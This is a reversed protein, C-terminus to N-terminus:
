MNTWPIRSGAPLQCSPCSRNSLFLLFADCQLPFFFSFSFFVSTHDLYSRYKFRSWKAGKISCKICKRNKTYFEFIYDSVLILINLTMVRNHKKLVKKRHQCCKFNLKLNYRFDQFYVLIMSEPTFTEGSEDRSFKYKLTGVVCTCLWCVVLLFVVPIGARTDSRCSDKDLISYLRLRLAEWNQDESWHTFLLM